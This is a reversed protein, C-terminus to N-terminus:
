GKRHSCVEKAARPSDTHSEADSIEVLKPGPDPIEKLHGRGSVEPIEEPQEGSRERDGTKEGAAAPSVSRGALFHNMAAIGDIQRAKGNQV